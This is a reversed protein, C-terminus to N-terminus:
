PVRRRPRRQVSLAHEARAILDELSDGPHLEAFGVSASAGPADEGLIATFDRLRQEATATDAGALSFLFEDGGFRLIVDYSRLTARLAAAVKRLLEDGLRPGHTENVLGMEDVDLYGLVFRAGSQRCRELERSVAAMGAPRNLAGTLEDRNLGDPAAVPGTATPQTAAAPAAISGPGTEPPVSHLPQPGRTPTGPAPGPAPASEPAASRGDPVPSLRDRAPASSAVAEVSVVERVLETWLNVITGIQNTVLGLVADRQEPDLGRLMQHMRAAGDSLAGAIELLRQAPVI